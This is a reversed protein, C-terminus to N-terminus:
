EIPRERLKSGRSRVSRRNRHRRSSISGHVPSRGHPLFNEQADSRHTHQSDSARGNKNRSDHRSTHASTILLSCNGEIPEQFWLGPWGPHRNTESREQLKGPRGRRQRSIRRDFSGFVTADGPVGNIRKHSAGDTGGVRAAVLCLNGPEFTYAVTCCGIGNDDM